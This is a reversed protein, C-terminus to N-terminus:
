GRNRKEIEGGVSSEDAFRDAGSECILVWVCRGGRHDWGPKQGANDGAPSECCGRGQEGQEGEIGLCAVRYVDFSM